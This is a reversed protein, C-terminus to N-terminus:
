VSILVEQARVQNEEWADSLKKEKLEFKKDEKDPLSLEDNEIEHLTYRFYAM